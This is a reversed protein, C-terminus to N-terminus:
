VFKADAKLLEFLPHLIGTVDKIFRSYYDILGIFARVQSSNKPIPMKELADFRSKDKHVGNADIIFGCYNIREDFFTCESRKFKINHENLINLVENM